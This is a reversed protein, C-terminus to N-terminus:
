TLQPVLASLVWALLGLAVWNVRAPVEFVALAFAIAAIVLLVVALM